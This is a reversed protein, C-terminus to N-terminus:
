ILNLSVTLVVLISLSEILDLNRDPLLLDSLLASHFEVQETM